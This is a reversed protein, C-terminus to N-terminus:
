SAEDPYQGLSLAPILGSLSHLSNKILPLLIQFIAPKFINKSNEPFDGTGAFRYGCGSVFILLILIFFNNRTKVFM